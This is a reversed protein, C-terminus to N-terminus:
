FGADWHNELSMIPDSEPYDIDELDVWGHAGEWVYGWYEIWEYLDEDSWGQVDEFTVDVEGSDCISQALEQAHMRKRTM